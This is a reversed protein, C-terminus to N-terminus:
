SALRRCVDEERETRAELHEVPLDAIRLLERGMRVL